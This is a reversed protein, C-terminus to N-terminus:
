WALQIRDDLVSAAIGDLTLVEALKQWYVKKPFDALTGKRIEDGDDTPQICIDGNEKLFLHNHGRSNLDNMLGLLEDRARTEYWVQPNVTQQSPPEAHSGGDGQLAATQVLACKLNAQRDLTVDAYDYDPVGYIRIRGTGGQAAFLEPNEMTWEWSANPYAGKLAASVRFNVHHLLTRLVADYDTGSALLTDQEHRRQAELKRQRHNSRWIPSFKRFLWLLWVSVTAALLPLLWKGRVLALEAILVGALVSVSTWVSSNPHKM